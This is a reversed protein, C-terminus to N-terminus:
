VQDVWAPIDLMFAEDIESALGDLVDGPSADSNGTGGVLTDPGDNGALFDDGAGGFLTDRANGGTLTDNGDGGFLRDFGREGNLVDNGTFGSLGDNDDGGNLTDDGEKGQLIDNGADGNLLDDGEGGVLSDNGDGGNLVDPGASGIITDDGGFARVQVFGRFGLFASVDILNPSDGANIEAIELALLVDTGNGTMSSNTVTFDEDGSEILRDVGRGGNLTDNGAGGILQDGSAGLGRIFDDGPGGLLTDSGSGGFVRDSGTGAEIQDNGGSGVLVDNGNSGILTDDGGGGDLTVSTLGPTFFASVDFTQGAAGGTLMAREIDVVIDDGLGTLSSNTLTLDGFLFTESVIDNGAGGDLMDNGPGGVLTDGTGGSGFLSDNGGGGILEDKGSGGILQDNGSGGMLTDSGSNGTLDVDAAAFRADFSDDGDGGSFTIPTSVAPSSNLVRVVDNEATGTITLRSVSMASARFVEDGIVGRVVLDDGDRLIDHQGGGPLTIAAPTAPDGLSAFLNGMELTGRGGTAEFFNFVSNGDDGDLEFDHVERDFAIWEANSLPAPTLIVQLAKFAKQSTAVDPVRAGERAIIDEITVTSVSDARFTTANIFSANEAVHLDPVEDPGVLGMLYLEIPSYPISNGGNAFTGFPAVSYTGDGQDIFTSHDWGGLQGNASSFGWHGGFSGEDLFVGWRHLLEHLSPGSALSGTRSLHIGGQLQGDSGWFQQAGQTAPLGTGQIGGGAFYFQGAYSATSQELNSTFFLFDFDDQFNEYLRMGLERAATSGMGDSLDDFLTQSLELSVVRQSGHVTLVYDDGTFSQPANFTDPAPDILDDIGDADLDSNYIFDRIFFSNSGAFTETSLRVFVRSDDPLGTVSHSTTGTLRGSQHLDTAGPSTGIELFYDIGAGEDTWTFTEAAQLVSEPAPTVIEAVLLLRKELCECDATSTRLRRQRRQRFWHM